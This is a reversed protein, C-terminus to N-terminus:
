AEDSTGKMSSYFAPGGFAAVRGVGFHGACFLKSTAIVDQYSLHWGINGM